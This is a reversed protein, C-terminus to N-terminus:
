PARRKLGYRLAGPDCGPGLFNMGLKQMVRLSAPLNPFTEAVIQTVRPDSFAWKVIATCAETAYGLRHYAPLLSYGIEVVGGADPPGRFGGGGVLIRETGDGEDRIWYWAWWGAQDPHAALTEAFFELVDAALEPPWDAPVKAALLRALEARDEVDARSSPADAAILELRATRLRPTPPM